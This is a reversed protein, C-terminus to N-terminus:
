RPVGALFPVYQEAAATFGDPDDAFRTVGGNDRDRVNYYQRMMASQRQRIGEQEGDGTLWKLIHDATPLVIHPDNRGTMLRSAVLLVDERDMEDPRQRNV